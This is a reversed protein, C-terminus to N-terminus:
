SSPRSGDEELPPCPQSNGLIVADWTIMQLTMQVVRESFSPNTYRGKFDAHCTVTQGISNLLFSGVLDLDDM